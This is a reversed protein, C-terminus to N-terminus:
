EKQIHRTDSITKVLVEVLQGQIGLGIKDEWDAM